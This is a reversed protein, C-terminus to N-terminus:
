MAEEDTTHTGSVKMMGLAEGSSVATIPFGAGPRSTMVRFEVTDGNAPVTITGAEPYGMVEIDLNTELGAGSVRWLVLDGKDAEVVEPVMADTTITVELVRDPTGRATRYGLWDTVIEDPHKRMAMAAENSGFCVVGANMVTPIHTTLLFATSGAAHWSSDDYDAFFVGDPL